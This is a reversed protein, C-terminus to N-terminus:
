AYFGCLKTCNYNGLNHLSSFNDFIKRSNGGASELNLDGLIFTNEHTVNGELFQVLAVYDENKSRPPIYVILFTFLRNNIKLDISLAEFHVSVTKHKVIKLKNSVKVLCLVGGGWAKEPLKLDRDARLVAYQNLDAIESDYIDECLWTEIIIVIEFDSVLVEDYFEHLKTRLGRCNQFYVLM